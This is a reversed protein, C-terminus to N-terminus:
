ETKQEELYASYRTQINKATKEGSQSGGFCALTMLLALSFLALQRLKM